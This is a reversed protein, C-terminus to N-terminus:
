DRALAHEGSVSTLAAVIEDALRAGDVAREPTAQIRVVLKDGDIEELVVRPASRTRTAVSEDLIAQVRSPRIGSNLRIRVDVAEPEILPVVAASLVVNNPIMIRDEGRALTTYLLGLSSVVGEIVGGVVGAQLRIREGVRFPRASLLVMGAIVNGLTQQAALGFIIATFAGGAAITAPNLGVIHLALAITLAITALRILLGVTGATAPDMRKFFTPAAAQGLDRSFAWGLVVLAIVIGAAYGTSSAIERGFLHRGNFWLFLVGVLLPLVLIAQRLARRVKRRDAELSLGAREWAHSRTEFMRDLRLNRDVRVGKPHDKRFPNRM